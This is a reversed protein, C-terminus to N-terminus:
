VLGLVLSPGATWTLSLEQVDLADAFLSFPNSAFLREFLIEHVMSLSMSTPGRAGTCLRALHRADADDPAGYGSCRGFVLTRISTGSYCGVLLLRERGLM